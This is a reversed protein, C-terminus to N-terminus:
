MMVMLVCSLVGHDDGCSSMVVLHHHDGRLSPQLELALAYPRSPLACPHVAHVCSIQLLRGCLRLALCLPLPMPGRGKHAVTYRHAVTHAACAGGGTPPLALAERLTRQPHMQMRSQLHM